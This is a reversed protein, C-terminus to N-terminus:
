TTASACWLRCVPLWMLKACLHHEFHGLIAGAGRQELGKEMYMWRDELIQYVFELLCMRGVQTPM